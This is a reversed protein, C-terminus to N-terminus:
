ATQDYDISLIWCCSLAFGMLLADQDRRMLFWDLRARELASCRSAAHVMGPVRVLRSRGVTPESEGPVTAAIRSAMASVPAPYASGENWDKRRTPFVVTWQRRRGERAGEPVSPDRKRKGRESRVVESADGGCDHGALPQLHVAGGASLVGDLPLRGQGDDIADPPPHATQLPQGPAAKLGTGGRGFTSAGADAVGRRSPAAEERHFLSVDSVRLLPKARATRPTATQAMQRATRSVEGACIKVARALM